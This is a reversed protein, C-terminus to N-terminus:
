IRVAFNTNSKWIQMKDCKNAPHLTDFTIDIAKNLDEYKHEFTACSCACFPLLAKGPPAVSAASIWNFTNTELTSFVSSPDCASRSRRLHLFVYRHKGRMVSFFNGGEFTGLLYDIGLLLVCVCVHWPCQKLKDGKTPWVCMVAVKKKDHTPWSPVEVDNILVIKQGHIYGNEVSNKKEQRSVYQAKRTTDDRRNQITKSYLKVAQTVGM